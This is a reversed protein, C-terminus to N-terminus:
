LFTTQLTESSPMRSIDNWLAHTQVLDRELETMVFDSLQRHPRDSVEPFFLAKGDSRIENALSVWTFQRLTPANRGSADTMGLVSVPIDNHRPVATEWSLRDRMIGLQFTQKCSRCLQDAKQCFGGFAILKRENVQPLSRLMRDIAVAAEEAVVPSACLCFGRGCKRPCEGSGRLDFLAIDGVHGVAKAYPIGYVPLPKPFFTIGTKQKAQYTSYISM